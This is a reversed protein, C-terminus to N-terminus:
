PNAAVDHIGLILAARAVLIGNEVKDVAESFRNADFDRAIPQSGLIAVQGDRINIRNGFGAAALERQVLLFLREQAQRPLSSIQSRQEDTAVLRGSVVLLRPREKLRSITLNTGSPLTADFQFFVTSTEGSVRRATVNFEDLWDRVRVEINNTTTKDELVREFVYPSWVLLLFVLMQTARSTEVMSVLRQGMGESSRKAKTNPSGAKLTAWINGISVLFGLWFKYDLEM